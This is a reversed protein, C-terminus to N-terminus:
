NISIEYNLFHQTYRNSSKTKSITEQHHKYWDELEKKAQERLEEKKKEEERDKEELRTKQDERWKKIKEPEERVPTPAAISLSFNANRRIIRIFHEISSEIFTAIRAIKLAVTYIYQCDNLRQRMLYSTTAIVPDTRIM